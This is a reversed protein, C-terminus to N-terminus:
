AWHNLYFRQKELFYICLFMNKKVRMWKKLNRLHYKIDAVTLTIDYNYSEFESRYSFDKSIADILANENNEVARLLKKLREIRIEYRPLPDNLHSQRMSNFIENIHDIDGVIKFNNEM